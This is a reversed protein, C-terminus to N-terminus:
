VMFCRSARASLHQTSQFCFITDNQFPSYTLIRCFTNCCISMDFSLVPLISFLIETWQIVERVTNIRELINERCSIKM